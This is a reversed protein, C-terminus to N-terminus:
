TSSCTFWHLFTSQQLCNSWCSCTSWHLVSPSIHVHSSVYFMHVLTSISQHSCTFWYLFHPSVHSGIHFLYVLQCLVSLSIHFLNVLNFCFVLIPIFHLWSQNNPNQVTFVLTPICGPTWLHLGWCAKFGHQLCLNV